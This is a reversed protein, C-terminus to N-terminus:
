EEHDPYLTIFRYVENDIEQVWITVIRKNKLKGKISYLDGFESIRELVLEHNLAVEKIDVLLDHWNELSYGLLYLFGSKDNKTKKVLLYKTIKEEAIFIQRATIRM